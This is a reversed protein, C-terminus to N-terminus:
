WKYKKNNHIITATKLDETDSVVPKRTVCESLENIYKKPTNGSFDNGTSRSDKQIHYKKGCKHCTIDSSDSSGRGSGSVNGSRRSKFDVLKFSKKIWQEIAM